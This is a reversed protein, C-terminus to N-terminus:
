PIHLVLLTQDDERPSPGTFRAVDALIGDRVQDVSRGAHRRLSAELREFGYLDASGEPRAEVIGDSLLVLTDGPDLRERSAHIELEPRVGLPYAISALDRVLGDARVVYPFLHGASAFLLERKVPDLLAYCLTAILRRRASQFVMRNLTTFVAAVDPDFTVQVALASKVASMVLGSSVGHGAVDGLALALRGDELALVDYFDGGVETAPLYAHSVDVGALRPPLEPLISSQIRRATELEVRQREREAIRRVHPPVDDWRYVFERGSGLHRVSLAAPVAVVALALWGQAELVPSKSFILALCGAGLELVLSALLVTLLDYALFLVVLAGATAVAFALGWALPLVTLWPFLLVGTALATVAAGLWFGLRRTLLPLLFLRGLLERYSVIVLSLALLSLGPAPGSVWLRSLLQSALPWVELPRLAVVLGLLGGLLTLGAALGRVSARAVTANDWEGQFLADFAALKRSWGERCLSEGVSWSLSAALAQPFFFLILFQLGWIWTVQRRTFIGWSQGETMAASVLLLMAAGASIVILFVQLGRRVGVEGAHYRRLFVLAVLATVLYVGLFVLQDWLGTPQIDAQIEREGPDDFFTDFGTLRDGAFHAELGYPVEPGLVAEKSRYRLVLDTRAQLQQSRAEPRDYRDLDFGRRRFFADAREVAAAPDVAPLEIEPEVRHQLSTVRGDPTVSARYAWDGPFAGDPYVTVRWQFVGDAVESAQLRELPVQDSSVLLRREVLGGDTVRDVVVYPHEVWGAEGPEAAALERLHELAIARAERSTTTWDHPYFPFARPFAWAALLAGAVAALLWPLLRRLDSM